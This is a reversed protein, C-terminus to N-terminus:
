FDSDTPFVFRFPGALNVRGALAEESMESEGCTSIPIAFRKPQQVELRHKPEVLHTRLWTRLAGISTLRSAPSTRNIRGFCHEVALHACNVSPDRPLNTRLGTRERGRWANM